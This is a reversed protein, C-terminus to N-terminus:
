NKSNTVKYLPHLMIVSLLKLSRLKWNAKPNFFLHNRFYVNYSFSVVAFDM